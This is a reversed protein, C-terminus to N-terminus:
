GPVVITNGDSTTLSALAQTLRWVPSDVLVKTSGHIEAEHPGGHAGGRAEM